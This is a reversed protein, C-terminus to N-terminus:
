AGANKLWNVLGHFEKVFGVRRFSKSPRADLGAPRVASFVPDSSRVGSGAADPKGTPVANECLDVVRGHIPWLKPIKLIEDGVALAEEMFFLTMKVSTQFAQRIM